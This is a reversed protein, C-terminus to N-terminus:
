GTATWAPPDSAPFTQWVAEDVIDGPDITREPLRQGQEFRSSSEADLQADRNFVRQGTLGSYVLYGGSFIFAAGRLSRQTLGYLILGGGIVVLWYKISNMM